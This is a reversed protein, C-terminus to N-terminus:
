LSYFLGKIGRNVKRLLSARRRICECLILVSSKNGQENEATAEASPQDAEPPCHDGNRMNM